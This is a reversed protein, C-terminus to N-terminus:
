YRQTGLKAADFSRSQGVTRHRPEARPPLNAPSAEARAAFQEATVKGEQVLQKWKERQAESRFGEAM